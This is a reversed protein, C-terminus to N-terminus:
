GDRKPAPPVQPASFQAVKWLPLKEGLIMRKGQVVVLRFAIVDKEVIALYERLQKDLTLVMSTKGNMHCRCLAVPEAM